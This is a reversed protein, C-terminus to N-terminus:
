LAIELAAHDESTRQNAGDGGALDQQLPGLADRCRGACRRVVAGPGSLDLPVALEKIRFGHFAAQVWLELPMAYGDDTM